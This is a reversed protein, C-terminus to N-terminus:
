HHDHAATGTPRGPERDLQGGSVLASFIMVKATADHGEVDAGPEREALGARQAYECSTGDAARSL